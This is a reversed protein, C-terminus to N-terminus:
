TLESVLVRVPDLVLVASNSALLGFMWTPNNPNITVAYFWFGAWCVCLVSAQLRDVFTWRPETLPEAFLRLSIEAGEDHYNVAWVCSYMMTRCLIGLAFVTGVATVIWDVASKDATADLDDRLEARLWDTLGQDTSM